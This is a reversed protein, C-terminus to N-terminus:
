LYKGFIFVTSYILSIIVEVVVTSCLFMLPKPKWHEESLKRSLGSSLFYYLTHTELIVEFM